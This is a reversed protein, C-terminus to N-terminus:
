YVVVVVIKSIVWQRQSTSESYVSMQCSPWPQHVQLEAEIDHDPWGVMSFMEALDAYVAFM